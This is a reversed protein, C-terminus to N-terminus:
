KMDMGGMDKMDGSTGMDKMDGMDDDGDHGPGSAGAKLVHAEVILTGAHAFTLSIPFTDGPNLPKQLGVLMIHYGGPKFTVSQGAPVPVSAVGLMRMVGGDNRTQHLVAATAVPTRAHTLADDAGRNVITLYVVSSMGEEAAARAWVHRVVIGGHAVAQALAAPSVAIPLPAFLLPALLFHRRRM